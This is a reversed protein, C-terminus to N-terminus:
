SIEQLKRPVAMPRPADRRVGLGAYIQELREISREVTYGAAITARAQEGLRAALARDRLLRQLAAALAAPEGPPVLLGNEGDRVLDPIGGVRTAIVPCGAAMAELLSMPLAEAHSPLVFVTARALLAERERAGIWGRMTVQTGVGLVRAHRRLRAMDGDGACEVRLRPCVPRLRSVADVLDYVGKAEECRGAFAVLDAERAVSDPPALAVPNPLCVIRPNSTVGQMWTAWRGSLVVIVAARDLFFRVVARGVPGLSRHFRAFGGGHLHFVIPWGALLACAMYVSKRWFSWRSAAHVHLVGRGHRCALLLWALLGRAGAALKQARTGSRHSVIYELPWREFLGGGRWAAVVSSIGGHTGPDTGLMVVHSPDRATM